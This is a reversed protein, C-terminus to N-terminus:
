KTLGTLQESLAWLKSQDEPNSLAVPCTATERCDAYYKGTEERITEEVACFITTQAGSEPSKIFPRVVLLAVSFIGLYDRIHRGLETAIVGPHLCYVTVGSGELREALERTFLINALKSQGYAKVSDYPTKEWNVDDWYIKAKKHALSSVNVIRAGPAAKKILPLLLNTLYFHGFHNTGMQMEFGDETKSLPCMMVGANNILIDIKKLSKELREVCDAVSKLSALDMKEVSVEGKTQATIEAAALNAKDTDRCLMVVKAGRKSMDLATIKGIGTNCGTIVVTKGDLRANSSCWGGQMYLHVLSLVSSIILATGLYGGTQYGIGLGLVICGIEIIPHM